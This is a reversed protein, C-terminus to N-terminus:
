MNQIYLEAQRILRASESFVENLEKEYKKAFNPARDALKRLAMMIVRNSDIADELKSKLVLDDVRKKINGKARNINATASAMQDLTASAGLNLVANGEAIANEYAAKQDASAYNTYAQSSVVNARDNVAYALESRQKEYVPDEAAYSINTESEVLGPAMVSLSVFFLSLGIKKLIKM